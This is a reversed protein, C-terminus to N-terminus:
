AKAAKIIKEITNWNRTTIQKGFEKELISMAETTQRTPSLTVLSCVETDTVRIIRFDKEPTIWPIKLDSKWKEALFTVYLRTLPTVKIKKFPGSEALAQIEALSRAVVGIDHGLIEKLKGEIVRALAVNTHKPANFLVNGSALITRANQFKLEELVSKLEAM